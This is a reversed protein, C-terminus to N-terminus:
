TFVHCAHSNCKRRADKVADAYLLKQKCYCTPLAVTKRSLLMSSDNQVALFVNRLAAECKKFAFIRDTHVAWTKKQVIKNKM